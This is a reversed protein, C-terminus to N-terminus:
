VRRWRGKVKKNSSIWPQFWRRDWGSVRADDNACMEGNKAAAYFPDQMMLRVGRGQDEPLPREYCSLDFPQSNADRAYDPAADVNLGLGLNEDYWSRHPGSLDDTSAFDLRIINAEVGVYLTSSSPSPLSMTYIPGRYRLRDRTLPLPLRSNPSPKQSLYISIDKRPYTLSDKLNATHHHHNNNNTHNPVANTQPNMPPYADMYSYRGPMRMDFIKVLANVGSGVLFREQGIPQLNYIPGDDVTDVFLSVYPKPSRLDHLRTKSDEWGALFLDGVNGGSQSTVPLPEIAYVQTKKSSGTEDFIDLKIDRTKTIADSTINFVSITDIAGDSGIAIKEDSLLRSCKHRASGHATTKINGLPAVEDEDADVRFFAISRRDLSAALVKNPGGSIDTKELNSSGTIYHKKLESTGGSPSISLRVLSGNRRGFVIDESDTATDGLPPLAHVGSIDDWSNVGHLSNFIAWTVGDQLKEISQRRGNLTIDTDTSGRESPRGHYGLDKVRINLDAGAGWVLVEKRDKWSNGYWVEYSDIVPRYGLTPHDTRVTRPHGVRRANHPPLVFRGIVAKRDFARSRSTLVRAADVWLPPTDISPFRSQVFAQFIRYDDASLVEHLRKCSRALNIICSATPLFSVIHYIIESPLRPLM